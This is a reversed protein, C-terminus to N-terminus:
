VLTQAIAHGGCPELRFLFGQMDEPIQFPLPKQGGKGGRRSSVNRFRDHTGAIMKWASATTM